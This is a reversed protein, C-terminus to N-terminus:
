GCSKFQAKWERINKSPIDLKSEFQTNIKQEILETDSRQVIPLCFDEGMEVARNDLGLIITRNQHAISHIGGHLRTGVYDINHSALFQSYKHVSPSIITINTTDVISQLYQYDGLGQPWFYLKEYEKDLINIFDKDRPSKNYKTLTFVVDNSKGSPIDKCHDNDFGWLTPCGTNIVNDIGISQLMEKTYSDRVSHHHGSSLIQKLLTKSYVGPRNQYQRWGVGLLIADQIRISNRLTIKWQQDGILNSTLLNSGGIFVHRSNKTLDSSISGITDHTQVRMLRPNEFVSQLHDKVSKMILEDGLNESAISPDFVTIPFMHILENTLPKYNRGIPTHLGNIKQRSCRKFIWM